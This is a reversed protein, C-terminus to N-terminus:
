MTDLVYGLAKLKDFLFEIDNGLENTKNSRDLTKFVGDEFRQFIMDENNIANTYILKCLTSVTEVSFYHLLDRNFTM